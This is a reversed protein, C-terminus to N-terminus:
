VPVFDARFNEDCVPYVQANDWVIWAGPLVPYFAGDERPLRCEGSSEMLGTLIMRSPITFRVADAYNTGDYRFTRVTQGDALRKYEM